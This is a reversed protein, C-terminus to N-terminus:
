WIAAEKGGCTSVQAQTPSTAPLAAQFHVADRRRFEGGRYIGQSELSGLVYSFGPALSNLDVALGVERPPRATPVAPWTPASHARFETPAFAHTQAGPSRLPAPGAPSPGPTRADRRAREASRLAPRPAFGRPTGRWDVHWSVKAAPNVGSGGEQMRRQEEPTRFGSDIMPIIGKANAEAFANGLADAMSQQFLPV